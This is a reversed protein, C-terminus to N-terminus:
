NEECILKLIHVLNFKMKEISDPITLKYIDINGIMKIAIKIEKAMFPELLSVGMINHVLASYGVLKPLRNCGIMQGRELIFVKYLATTKEINNGTNLAYYRKNLGPYVDNLLRSQELYEATQKTVKMLKSGRNVVIHSFSNVCTVMDDGYASCLKCNDLISAITTKGIGKEGLFTVVGKDKVVISSAHLPLMKKCLTIIAFPLNCITAYMYQLDDFHCIMRERMIEYYGKDKFYLFYTQDQIILTNNESNSYNMLRSYYIEYDYQDDNSEHFFPFEINSKFVIGCYIYKM